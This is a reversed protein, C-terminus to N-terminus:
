SLNGPPKPLNFIKIYASPDIIATPNVSIYDRYVDFSNVRFKSFLAFGKEIFNGIIKKM